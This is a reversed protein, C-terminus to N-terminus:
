YGFDSERITRFFLWVYEPIGCVDLISCQASWRLRLYAKLLMESFNRINKLSLCM